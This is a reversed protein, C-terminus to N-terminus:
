KFKKGLFKKTIKFTKLNKKKIVIYGSNHAVFIETKNERFIIGNQFPHFKQKVSFSADYIIIKKKNLFTFAGNFPHSFAKIFSVIDEVNWNWNIQGDKNANLRPWYYSEGKQKKEIMKNGKLIKNIFNKLFIKENYSIIKLYDKPILNKKYKLRKTFVINGTDFDKEVKHINITNKNFNNQLIKWSLNGAGREEPLNAAHYNYFNGNFKNILEKSFKWVSNVSLGYTNKDVLNIVKKEDLKKLKLYKIKKIKNKFLVGNKSEKNLHEPDTILKFNIKKKKLYNLIFTVPMDEKLRNGGFILLKLNNKKIM